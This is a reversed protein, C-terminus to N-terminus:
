AVPVNDLLRVKGLRAAAILRAGSATATPRLSATEVLALYDVELGAERLAAEADALARPGGAQAAATQLVAFLRAAAARHGPALFRNRSSMALGDPERVTPVAVVEVPWHLNAVMRRVVQLQQWDKEGFMVAAPSVQHLLKAVVTAMGRFHGPRIAGEFGESPGGVTVVTADGPPYMAEVTPLWALDCGAAELLALDGAEDRPYRALDEGPAFQTPNVFISAAVRPAHRRAEAVLALHGAHLAGMTPALAWREGGLAARLSAVDRAVIM